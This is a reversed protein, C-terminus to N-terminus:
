YPSWINGAPRAFSTGPGVCNANIHMRDLVATAYRIVRGDLFLVSTGLHRDAFGRQYQGTWTPRYPDLSDLAHLESSPISGYWSEPTTPYVTPVPAGAQNIWADAIYMSNSPDRWARGPASPWATCPGNVQPGWFGGKTHDNMDNWKWAPNGIYCAQVMPGMEVWGATQFISGPCRFIPSITENPVPWETTNHGVYPGLQWWWNHDHIGIPVCSNHDDTYGNMAIGIHHQNGACAAARALLKANKLAPALLCLLLVLIAIVVLLEILTFARLRVRM